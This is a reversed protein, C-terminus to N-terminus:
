SSLTLTSELLTHVPGSYVAAKKDVYKHSTANEADIIMFDFCGNIKFFMSSTRFGGTNLICVVYKEM